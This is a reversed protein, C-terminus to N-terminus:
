QKKNNNNDNSDNNSVLDGMVARSHPMFRVLIDTEEQLQEWPEMVDWEVEEDKLDKLLAENKQYYDPDEKEVVEFEVGNSLDNLIKEVIARNKMKMDEYVAELNVSGVVDQKKKKAWELHADQKKKWEKFEMPKYDWPGFWKNVKDGKAEAERRAKTAEEIWPDYPLQLRLFELSSQFLMTSGGLIYFTRAIRRPWKSRPLPLIQQPPAAAMNIIRNVRRFGLRLSILGFVAQTAALGYLCSICDNAPVLPGFTSLGFSPNQKM